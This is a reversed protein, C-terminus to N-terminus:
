TDLKPTNTANNHASRALRSILDDVIRNNDRVRMWKGDKTKRMLGAQHKSPSFREIKTQDAM